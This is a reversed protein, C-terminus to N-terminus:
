IVKALVVKSCVTVAKSDHKLKEPWPLRHTIYPPVGNVLLFPHCKCFKFLIQGIEASRNCKEQM